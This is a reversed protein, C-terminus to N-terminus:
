VPPRTRDEREVDRLMGMDVEVGDSVAGALSRVVHFREGIGTL